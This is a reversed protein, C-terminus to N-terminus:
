HWLCQVLSQTGPHHPPTGKLGVQPLTQDLPCSIRSPGPHMLLSWDALCMDWYQSLWSECITKSRAETSSDTCCPLLNQYFIGWLAPQLLVMKRRLLLTVQFFVGVNQLFMSVEPIIKSPLFGSVWNWYCKETLKGQNKRCLNTDRMM